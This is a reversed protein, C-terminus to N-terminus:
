GFSKQHSIQVNWQWGRKGIFGLEQTISKGTEDVRLPVGRWGDWTKHISSVIPARQSFCFLVVLCSCCGTRSVCKNWVSTIEYFVLFIIEFWGLIFFTFSVSKPQNQQAFHWIYIDISIIIIIRRSLSQHYWFRFLRWSSSSESMEKASTSTPPSSTLTEFWISLLIHATM